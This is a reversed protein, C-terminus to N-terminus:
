ALAAGACVREGACRAARRRGERRAVKGPEEAIPIPSTAEGAGAEGGAGGAQAGGAAVVDDDDSIGGFWLTCANLLLAMSLLSNTKM